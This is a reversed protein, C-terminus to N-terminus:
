DLLMGIRLRKGRMDLVDWVKRVVVRWFLEIDWM